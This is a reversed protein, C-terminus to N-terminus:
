RPGGGAGGLEQNLLGLVRRVIAREPDGEISRFPGLDVIHDAIRANDVPPEAPATGNVPDAGLLEAVHQAVAHHARRRPRHTPDSVDAEAGPQGM